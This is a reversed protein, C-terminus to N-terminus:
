SVSYNRNKKSQKKTVHSNLRDIFTNTFRDSGINDNKEIIITIKDTNSNKKIQLNILKEFDRRAEELPDIYRVMDPYLYRKEGQYELYFINEHLVEKNIYVSKNNELKYNSNTGNDAYIITKRLDANVSFSYTHCMDEWIAWFNSVGWFDGSNDNPFYEGYLFMEIADFFLWFDGDKYSTQRHIYDLTEKLISITEDFSEGFISSSSTLHGEKFKAAIYRVDERVEDAEFLEKKIESYIFCYMEVLLNASLDVISLHSPMKDIYITDDELYIAKDIHKNINSFDINNERQFNKRVISSIIMEDYSEIISEIMSIKGYCIVDDKDTYSIKLGDSSQIIGDRDNKKQKSTKQKRNIFVKLTKYMKFFFVRIEKKDNIPFNEFNLPLWFELRKTDTNRKIGVFSYSCNDRSKGNIVDLNDINFM